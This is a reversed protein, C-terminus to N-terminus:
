KNFFIRPNKSNPSPITFSQPVSSIPQSSISVSSTASSPIGLSCFSFCLIVVLMMGTPEQSDSRPETQETSFFYKLPFNHLKTTKNPDQFYNELNKNACFFGFNCNVGLFLFVCFTPLHHHSFQVIPPLHYRHCNPTSSLYISPMVM